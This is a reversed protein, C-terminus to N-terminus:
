SKKNNKIINKFIIIIGLLIMPLSLIQGMSIGFFLGLQVDPQRLFELFFRFIGYYFLFLGSINGQSKHNIKKKNLILFLIIGEFIMEYIQSPHRPLGGYKNYLNMMNENNYIYLLDDILANPFLFAWPVSLTVRGWLEGNIFNGIRGLGLSLPISQAIIDSVQFFKKNKSRSFYIISLVVGILGGHFSMGGEWIKFIYIPDKLFYKVNYFIVYGIRGGLIAGFFTLYLLFNIDEEYWNKYLRNIRKKIIYSTFYFSLLYILGYWRFSICGINFIVPNIKPFNFYYM